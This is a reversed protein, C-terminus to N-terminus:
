CLRRKSQGQATQQVRQDFRTGFSIVMVKSCSGARNLGHRGCCPGSGPQLQQISPMHVIASNCPMAPHANCVSFLPVPSHLMKGLPDWHSSASTPFSYSDKGGEELWQSEQRCAASGSCADDAQQKQRSKQSATGHSMDEPWYRMM